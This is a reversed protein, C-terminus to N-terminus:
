IKKGKRKPPKRVLRAFLRGFIADFIIALVLGIALTPLMLIKARPDVRGGNRRVRSAGIFVSIGSAMVVFLVILLPVTINM